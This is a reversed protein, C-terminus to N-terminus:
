SEHGLDSRERDLDGTRRVLPGLRAVEGARAAAVGAIRERLAAGAALRNAALDCLRRVDDSGPVAPFIEESGYELVDALSQMKHAGTALFICPTGGLAAMITPHYRGSVFLRARGLIAAALHIPVGVPVVALELDGAVEELFSDRGDAVVVYVPYGLDRLSACLRRYGATLEARAGPRTALSNGGVCVYHASLDLRGLYREHEPAPLVFDGDAPLQARAARQRDYWLFLSDPVLHVRDLGMDQQAVALSRRDRVAVLHSRRLAQATLAFAVPDRGTQACDSLMTNVFVVRKDLQRGLEAMAAFFRIQRRVPRSFVVDGEGNIVVTDAARVREYLGQLGPDRRRRRQLNRVSAVPDDVLFDGAGLLRDLGRVAVVLPNRTARRALSRALWQRHPPFLRSHFGYDAATSSMETGLVSEGPGLSEKLLAFLALSGARGGWNVNSRNDGVLLFSM